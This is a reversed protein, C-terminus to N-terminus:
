GAQARRGSAPREAIEFWVRTRSDRSVGWRDSLADLIMLGRGGESQWDGRGNASEEFGFGGDAIEVKLGAPLSWARLRIPEASGSHRVSNTVLESVLLQADHLVAADVEGAFREIARRAEAPARSSSPISADLGPNFAWSGM